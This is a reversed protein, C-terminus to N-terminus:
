RSGLDAPPLAAEVDLRTVPIGLDRIRQVVPVHDPHVRYAELDDYSTFLTILGTTSPADVDRAVALWAVVDLERLGELERELEVRVSAEIASMDFSVIHWIM